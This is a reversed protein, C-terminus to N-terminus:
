LGMPCSVKLMRNAPRERMHERLHWSQKRRARDPRRQRSSTCSAKTRSASVTNVDIRLPLGFQRCLKDESCEGFRIEGDAGSRSHSRNAQAILTEATATVTVDKPEVGPVVIRLQFGEDSELLEASSAGLMDHEALLWDYWDLGSLRGRQGFLDFSRQQIKEITKEVEAFLTPKEEPNLHLVGEILVTSM